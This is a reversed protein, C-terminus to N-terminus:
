GAEPDVSADLEAPTGGRSGGGWLALLRPLLILAVLAEALIGVVMVRGLSALGAHSAFLLSGFGVISTAAAYVVARGTTGVAAEIEHESAYRHVLNVGFGVGEGLMIPLAVSNVVNWSEGALSLYGVGAVTGCGMPLLGFFLMRPQRLDFFVIALILALSLAATQGFGERILDLMRSVMLPPGAAQGGCAAVAAAFARATERRSLDGSPWVYTALSGDSGVYRFVLGPPLTALRRPPDLGARDTLARLGELASAIARSFAFLLHAARDAPCRSLLERARRLERELAQVRNSLASSEELRSLSELAEVSRDMGDLAALTREREGPRALSSAKALGRTRSLLREVVLRREPDAWGVLAAPSDVRGVEPRATLSRVVGEAEEFTRSRVLVVDSSLGFAAKLIRETEM